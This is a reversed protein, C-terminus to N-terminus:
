CSYKFYCNASNSYYLHVGIKSRHSKGISYTDDFQVNSVRDLDFSNVSALCLNGGRLVDFAAYAFRGTELGSARLGKEMERHAFDINALVQQPLRRFAVPSATAASVTQSSNEENENNNVPISPRFTLEYPFKSFSTDDIAEADSDPRVHESRSANKSYTQGM